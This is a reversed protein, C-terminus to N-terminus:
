RGAANAIRAARRRALQDVDDDDAAGGNATPTGPQGAPKGPAAGRATRLEALLQKLALAQQREESLAKDIVLELDGDRMVDREVIRAWSAADGRALMDLQDLRDALRCAQLLLALQDAPWGAPSM